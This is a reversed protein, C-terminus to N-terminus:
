LHSVYSMSYNEKVNLGYLVAYIKLALFFICGGILALEVKGKAVMRRGWFLGKAVM